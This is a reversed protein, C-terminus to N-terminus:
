KSGAVVLEAVRGAGIYHTAYYGDSMDSIMVGSISAHVFKDNRLYVGVHTIAKRKGYTNFFVLDGEQLNNRSVRPTALYQDKSIRPLHNVNYVNSMLTVVFASCDIGDKATGGFQYKAGYWEDIFQLLRENDMEEVPADILIAYKFQLPSYSEIRSPYKYSNNYASPNLSPNRERQNNSYSRSPANGSAHHVPKVSADGPQKDSSGSSSAPSRLSSCALMLLCLPLVSLFYTVKYTKHMDPM